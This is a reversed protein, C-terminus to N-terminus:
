EGRPLDKGTATQYINQLIRVSMLAFGFPVTFYVYGMNMQLSPSRQDAVWNMLAVDFGIKVMVVAFLFWIFDRIIQVVKKSSDPILAMLLDVRLHRNVKVGLSASLFTFAIFLYRAMEETWDLPLNVAYRFVVQLFLLCTIVGLLSAVLIEEFHRNIKDVWNM